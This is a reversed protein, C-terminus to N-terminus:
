AFTLPQTSPGTQVVPPKKHSKLLRKLEKAEKQTIAKSHLAKEISEVTLYVHSM